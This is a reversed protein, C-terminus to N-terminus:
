PPCTALQPVPFNSKRIFWGREFGCCSDITTYTLRVIGMKGILQPPVAIVIKDWQDAARSNLSTCFPFPTPNLPACTPLTTFSMGNDISISITKSDPGAAGGGEDIHWSEFTLTNPIVFSGSTVVSNESEGGPYPPVRNGDTGFVTEGFPIATPANQSPPAEKYLGWGGQLKWGKKTIGTCKCATSCGDDEDMNKDDCQEVKMGKVNIFGDGCKAATCAGGNASDDPCDDDNSKNGDDCDTAM